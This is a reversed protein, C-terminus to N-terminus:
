KDRGLSSQSICGPRLFSTKLALNEIYVFVQNKLNTNKKRNERNERNEKAGVYSIDRNCHQRAFAEQFLRKGNGSM